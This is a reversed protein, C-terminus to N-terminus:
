PSGVPMPQAPPTAGVARIHAELEGTAYDHRRVDPYLENPIENHEAKWVAMPSKAGAEKYRVLVQAIESKWERLLGDHRAEALRLEAVRAKDARYWALLTAVVLTLWLLDRTTVKMSVM